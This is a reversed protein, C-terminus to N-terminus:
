GLGCRRKPAIGTKLFCWRDAGAFELPQDEQSIIFGVRFVDQWTSMLNTIGCCTWGGHLFCPQEVRKITQFCNWLLNVVTECTESGGDAKSRWGMSGWPPWWPRRQRPKTSSMSRTASLRRRWNEISHWTSIHIMNIYHHLFIYIHVWQYQHQSIYRSMKYCQYLMNKIIM